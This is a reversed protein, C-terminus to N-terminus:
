KNKITLVSIFYIAAISVTIISLILMYESSSVYTFTLGSAILEVVSIIVLIKKDDFVLGYLSSLLHIGPIAYLSLRLLTAVVDTNELMKYIVVDADFHYSMSFYTVLCLIMQLIAMVKIIKRNM